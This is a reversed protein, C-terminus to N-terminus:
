GSTSGGMHSLWDDFAQNNAPAPNPMRPSALIALEFNRGDRLHLRAAPPKLLSARNLIEISSIDARPIAVPELLKSKSILDDIKGVISPAGAKSLFKVLWARTQDMDWPTFVLHQQTVIALGGAVSFGGGMTRAATWVGLAGDIPVPSPKYRPLFADLLGMLGM